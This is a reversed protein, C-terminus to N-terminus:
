FSPHGPGMVMHLDSDGAYSAVGIWLKYGFASPSYYGNCNVKVTGREAIWWTDRSATPGAIEYAAPSRAASVRTMGQGFKGEFRFEHNRGAVPVLATIVKGVLEQPCSRADEEEEPTPYEGGNGGDGGGGGSSCEDPYRSCVDDPDGDPAIPAIVVIPQLVCMGETVCGQTTIGGERAAYQDAGGGREVGLRRDVRRLAAETYPVTCFAAAVVEGSPTTGRFRYSVTRGGGLEPQPYYISLPRNSGTGDTPSKRLM